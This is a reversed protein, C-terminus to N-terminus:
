IKRATVWNWFGKGEVVTTEFGANNCWNEVDYISANHDYEGQYDGRVFQFRLTGTPTLLRTSEKIYHQKEESTIHQFTLMSYIFNLKEEPFKTTYTINKRTPAKDLEKKDIDFGIFKVSKYKDALPVILRGDGCGLDLVTGKIKIGDTIIKLHEETEM